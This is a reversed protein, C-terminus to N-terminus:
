PSGVAGAFPNGGDDSEKAVPTRARAVFTMGLERAFRLFLESQNRFVVEAPHKRLGDKGEIVVEGGVQRYAQRAMVFHRLCMEVAPGDAVSVLGASDLEPVIQDWAASLEPDLEVDEPKAPALAAVKAAATGEALDKVPHLSNVLKLPGRSGGGKGVRPM